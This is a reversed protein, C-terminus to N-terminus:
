RIFRLVYQIAGYFNFLLIIVCLLTQYWKNKYEGMYKESSTYITLLGIIVFGGVSLLGMFNVLLPLANKTVAPVLGSLAALAIGLWVFYRRTGQGLKGEVNFIGNIPYTALMSMGGVTTFVAGWFGLLFVWKGFAGALPEIAKAADLASKVKIAAPNLVAAGSLFIGLSFITFMSAFIIQDWKIIKLAAIKNWGADKVGYSYWLASTGPGSGGIIGAIVAAQALPPIKPVMGRAVATLDPQVYIANIFFIVAMISCMISAIKIALNKGSTYIFGITLLTATFLYPSFQQGFMIDNLQKLTAGQSFIIMYWTLLVVLFLINSFTIGIKERFFEFVNKGTVATLKGGFYSVGGCILGSLLVVWLLDYGYNAGATVVSTATGPGMATSTIISAPGIFALIYGLRKLFNGEPIQFSDINIDKKASM